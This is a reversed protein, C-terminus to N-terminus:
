VRIREAIRAVSYPHWQEGRRPGIGQANLAGAIAQFSGGAARLTRITALVEEEDPRAGYPKAGECHGDRAPMRRRAGRPTMNV